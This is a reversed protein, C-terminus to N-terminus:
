DRPTHISMSTRMAIEKHLRKNFEGAMDYGNERLYHGLAAVEVLRTMDRGPAVPLNLREVDVGLITTKKREIGLREMETMQGNTLNIVLDINKQRRYAKLGFLNTVNIIGIGRIEIFGSSLKPSTAILEGSINRVRVMDDAVLSAGREVLGLSIESKGIGSDGTLLVGVGNVDVMCGHLTTSEAFENELIITARNVLKVTPLPSVFVSVSYEDALELVDRPVDVNRTFILCPVDEAFLRRIREERPIGEMTTMYAMEAAGFVQIREHAFYSFYGALALGPRNLTPQLIKRSMGLPSNCLQLELTGGYNEYFRAVSVSDVKKTVPAKM